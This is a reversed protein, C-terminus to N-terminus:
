SVVKLPAVTSSANRLVSGGNLFHVRWAADEKTDHESEAYWAGEPDYFGSEWQDSATRIFVYM